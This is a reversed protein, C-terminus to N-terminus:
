FCDLSDRDREAKVRERQLWKETIQPTQNKDKVSECLSQESLVLFDNLLATNRGGEEQSLAREMGRALRWLTDEKHHYEWPSYQCKNLGLQIHFLHKTAGVWVSLTCDASMAERIIRNWKGKRLTVTCGKRGELGTWILKVSRKLFESWILTKRQLSSLLPADLNWM